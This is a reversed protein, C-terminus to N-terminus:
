SVGVRTQNLKSLTQNAQASHCIAIRGLRRLLFHSLPRVKNLLSPQSTREILCDCYKNVGAPSSELGIYAFADLCLKIFGSRGNVKPERVHCLDCNGGLHYVAMQLMLFAQGLQFALVDENREGYHWLV